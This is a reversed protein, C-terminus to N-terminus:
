NSYGGFEVDTSPIPLVYVSKNPSIGAGKIESANLRKYYFFLQGGEGVFEKRYEKFIEDQIETSSLTEPLPSSGLNRASRVSNLLKVARLPDTDKLCEAAIYYAESMRILPYIDNHIGQEYHWFKCLYKDSGNTDYGKLYRYDNGYAKSNVEYIDMAKEISPSLTSTGGASKFYYDSTDQWDVITLHFLHELSFSRDCEYDHQTEVATHDVWRFPSSLAKDDDGVSIIENAYKLANATDGMWMYARALTVVTAYYNFYQIRTSRSYYPTKSAKLSDSLLCERAALLDNVILNMTEGVTKQPVVETSYSTIYPVGKANNDAKPSCAFLRMLDFHLFARLGLAEGKYVNYHNGTFINKDVKDINKIVLNLNAICNYTSSWIADIISKSSSNTYDYNAAYRWEGNANVNYNQSLVESFGIGMQLGYMTTQSMASYVGTLEDQFGGETSFQDAEKIQSKPSVDLWDSCSALAMSAIIGLLLSKIYLIKKM